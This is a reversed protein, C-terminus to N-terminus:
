LARRTKEWRDSNQLQWREEEKTGVQVVKGKQLNGEKQVGATHTKWGEPSGCVVGWRSGMQEAVPFVSAVAKM